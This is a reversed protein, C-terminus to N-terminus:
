AEKLKRITAAYLRPQLLSIAEMLEEIIPLVTAYQKGDVAAAFESGSMAIVEGSNLPATYSEGTDEYMFRQITLYAALKICTNATPNRVGQCEAIAQRLDEHTIM